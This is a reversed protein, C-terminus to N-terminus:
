NLNTRPTLRRNVALDIGAVACVNEILDRILRQEHDLEDPTQEWLSEWTTATANAKLALDRAPTSTIIEVVPDLRATLEAMKDSVVDFGTEEDVVGMAALHREAEYESRFGWHSKIGTM